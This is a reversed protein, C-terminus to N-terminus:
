EFNLQTLRIQYVCKIASSMWSRGFESILKKFCLELSMKTMSLLVVGCWVVGYWVM